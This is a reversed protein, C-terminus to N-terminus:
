VCPFDWYNSKLVRTSLDLDTFKGFNRFLNENRQVFENAVDLLRIKDTRAKHTHLLAVNNFRQQKMNARLWTKVRRATSFSREGTASTAPNVLLFKCIVIVETIMHKEHDTLSKVAKLVDAFCNIQADKILVKLIEDLGNTLIRIALDFRRDSSVGYQFISQPVERNHTESLVRPIRLLCRSGDNLLLCLFWTRPLAVM